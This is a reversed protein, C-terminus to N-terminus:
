RATLRYLGNFRGCDLCPLVHCCPLFSNVCETVVSGRRSVLRELEKTLIVDASIDNREQAPPM